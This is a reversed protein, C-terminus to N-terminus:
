AFASAIKAAGAMDGEMACDVADRYANLSGRDKGPTPVVLRGLDGPEIKVLGDPYRRLVRQLQAQVSETFIMLAWASQESVSLDDKFRVSYLTNTATIRTDRNLAIWPGFRGMGSVFGHPRMPLKVRFWMPERRRVQLADRNCGGQDKPLELYRRIAPNVLSAESPRFLWVREGDDRLRSWQTRTVEASELHSARSVVPTLAAVPLRLERRRHENLLFYRGDGTVAGIRVTVVDALAKVRSNSRLSHGATLKSRRSIGSKIARFMFEKRSYESRVISHAPGKGFGEAVLVVAGEQVGSFLPHVSRYSKVSYFLKGISVRLPEAYDAYEWAAPLVFALSGGGRLLGISACLFAYWCNARHPVLSAQGPVTTTLAHDLLSGRLERIALYPPNAVIRDFRLSTRKSWALFDIGRRVRALRDSPEADDALDVGTIRRSDVGTRALASLLAGQGVCPELWRLDGVDRGSQTSSVLADALAAPTYVLCSKDPIM